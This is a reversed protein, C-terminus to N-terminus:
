ARPPEHRQCPLVMRPNTSVTPAADHALRELAAVVSVTVTDFADSAYCEAWAGRHRELLSCWVESQQEFPMRFMVERWAFDFDLGESRFMALLRRVCAAPSDLTM